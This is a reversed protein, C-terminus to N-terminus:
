IHDKIRGPLGGKGEGIPEFDGACVLKMSNIDIDIHSAIGAATPIDSRFMQHFGSTKRYAVHQNCACQIAIRQRTGLLSDIFKSGCKVEEEVQM